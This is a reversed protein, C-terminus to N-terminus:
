ERWSPPRVGLEVLHPGSRVGQDIEEESMERLLKWSRRSYSDCTVMMKNSIFQDCGSDSTAFILDFREPLFMGDVIPALRQNYLGINDLHSDVIIGQWGTELVAKAPCLEGDTSVVRITSKQGLPVFILDLRRETALELILRVLHPKREVGRKKVPTSVGSDLVPTFPETDEHFDIQLCSGANGQLLFIFGDATFEDPARPQAGRPFSLSPPLLM